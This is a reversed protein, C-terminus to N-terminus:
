GTPCECCQGEIYAATDGSDKLAQCDASLTQGPDPDEQQTEEEDCVNDGDADNFCVGECNRYSPPAQCSGDDITATADYNCATDDTCGSVPDPQACCMAQIEEDTCASPDVCTSSDVANDGLFSAGSCMDDGTQGPPVIGSCTLPADGAPSAICTCGMILHGSNGSSRYRYAIAGSPPPPLTYGTSNGQITTYETYAGGDYDYLTLSTLDGLLTIDFKDGDCYTIDNQEAGDVYALIHGDQPHPRFSVDITKCEEGSASAVGLLGLALLYKM